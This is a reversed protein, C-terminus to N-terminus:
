EPPAKAPPGEHADVGAPPAFAGGVAMAMGNLFDRRDIKM